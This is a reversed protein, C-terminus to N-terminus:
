KLMIKGDTCKFLHRYKNVRASVQGAPLDRGDKRGYLKRCNIEDAIERATQTGNQLVVAIAEHLTLM